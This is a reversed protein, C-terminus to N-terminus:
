YFPNSKVDDEIDDLVKIIDTFLPRKKPDTEVCWEILKALKLPTSEPPRPKLGKHMVHSAAQVNDLNEYPEKRTVVEWLTVGMSWIDSKASYKKESLGEPAMWKLPGTNSRTVGEDSSSFRSLGFDAVKCVWEGKKNITVLINRASLDRHFIQQAHIHAMGKAIDRAIGIAQLFNIEVSNDDLLSRLSGKELYETIIASPKEDTEKCVGYTKVVNPHPEMNVMLAAERQFEESLKPDQRHLMKVAVYLDRWKGKYVVGFGGEGIKEELVIEKMDIKWWESNQFM